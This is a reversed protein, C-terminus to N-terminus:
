WVIYYESADDQTFTSVEGGTTTDNNVAAQSTSVGAPPNNFFKDHGAINHGGQDQKILVKCDKHSCWM